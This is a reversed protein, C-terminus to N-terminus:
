ETVLDGLEGPGGQFVTVDEHGDRFLLSAATAAREGHGCHVLVPQDSVDGASGMLSGLEAHVADPLHGSAYESAQRVDLVVRGDVADRGEAVTMRSLPRGSGRWTEQGGVLVGEVNEFGVKLAAWVLDERHVTDDTVFILPTQRPILWGLWTAFQARWPNSISRPVHGAAFDTVSRVDVVEAGGTVAAEVQAPSLEALPAPEPGILVPGNRNVDRLELFYPPYTGYGAVLREVFADEDPDGAFLPNAAKERGISTTREAGDGVSCFSGAGHTPYVLLDDPLTFLRRRVSRYAARALPVTQDASLLDTRAVGGTMLTGGSFLAVPESGDLLLYSIHEPTHGPTAVVRLTLGGLDVEEEDRLPRHAYALESDAPALLEVDGVALERGGSVFDAHLHTEAVFRARLGRRGLEALYPRPDREPDVVLASGDGLDVVYSSNGLGEDVIATVDVGVVKEFMAKFLLIGTPPNM